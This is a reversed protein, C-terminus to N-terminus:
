NQPGRSAPNKIKQNKWNKSPDSIGFFSMKPYKQGESGWLFPWFRFILIRTM